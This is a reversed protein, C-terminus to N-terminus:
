FSASNEAPQATSFILTGVMIVESRIKIVVCLTKPDSAIRLYKASTLCEFERL